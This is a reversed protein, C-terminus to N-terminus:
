VTARSAGGDVLIAAGNVFSARESSLFAVVEGLEHPEGLRNMASAAGLQDLWVDLGEEYSDFEGREVRNENLEIFRDTEYTGPLVANVRVDPALERSLSKELGLVAMRISNSLVLSPTSGAEKASISTINVITGANSGRLHDISHWALRVVSMVLLNYWHHWEAETTEVFSKGPPGGANTVLHDLGGYRDVTAGVLSEIDNPDTLDARHGTVTGSGIDDLADVTQDITEQTRGNIVVNAGERALAQASAKGLGRSSAVVLATNGSLGLDM